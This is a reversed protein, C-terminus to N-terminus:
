VCEYAFICSIKEFFVFIGMTKIVFAVFQKKLCLFGVM